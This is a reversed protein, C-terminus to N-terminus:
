KTLRDKYLGPNKAAKFADGFTKFGDLVSYM